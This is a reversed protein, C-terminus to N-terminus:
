VQEMDIQLNLHPKSPNIVIRNLLGDFLDAEAGVLSLVDLERDLGQLWGAVVHGAALVRLLVNGFLYIQVEAHENYRYKGNRIQYSKSENYLPRESCRMVFRGLAAEKVPSQAALARVSVLGGVQRRLNM